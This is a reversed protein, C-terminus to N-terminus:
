VVDKLDNLLKVVDLLQQAAEVSIDHHSSEFTDEIIASRLQMLASNITRIDSGHPVLVVNETGLHMTELSELHICKARHVNM